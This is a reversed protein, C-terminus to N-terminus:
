RLPYLESLTFQAQMYLTERQLRQKINHSAALGTEAHFAYPDAKLVTKGGHTVAFKYADYEKLGVIFTEYVGGESIRTMPNKNIDWGNFDGVLSVKDARPAWVRFIYGDKGDQACKHVGFYEFANCSTGDYINQEIFRQM